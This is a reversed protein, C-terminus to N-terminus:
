VNIANSDIQRRNFPLNVHPQEVRIELPPQAQVPPDQRVVDRYKGAIIALISLTSLYFYSNTLAQAVVYEADTKKSVINMLVFFVSSVAYLGIHLFNIILKRPVRNADDIEHFIVYLTVLARLLLLVVLSVSHLEFAYPNSKQHIYEVYVELYIAVSFHVFLAIVRNTLTSTEPPKRPDYLRAAVNSISVTLVFLAKPILRFKQPVQCISECILYIFILATWMIQVTIFLRGPRIQLRVWTSLRETISGNWARIARQRFVGYHVAAFYVIHVYVVLMVMPRAIRVMSDSYTLNGLMLYFSAIVFWSLRLHCVLPYVGGETQRTIWEKDTVTLAGINAFAAITSVAIWAPHQGEQLIYDISSMFIHHCFFGGAVYRGYKKVLENPLERPDYYVALRFIAAVILAFGFVPIGWIGMVTLEPILASMATAIGALLLSVLIALQLPTM